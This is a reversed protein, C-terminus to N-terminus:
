WADHEDDNDNNNVMVMIVIMITRVKEVVSELSGGADAASAEREGARLLKDLYRALLESCSPVGEVRENM